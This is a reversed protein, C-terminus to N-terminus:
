PKRGRAEVGNYGPQAQAEILHADRLWRWVEALTQPHDHVPSLGDYTDLLTMEYLRDSPLDFVGRYDPVGLCVGLARAGRGSLHHFLGVVPYIWSVYREVFSM